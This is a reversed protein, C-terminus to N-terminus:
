WKGGGKEMAKKRNKDERKKRRMVRESGALYIFTKKNEGIGRDRKEEEQLSKENAKKTKGLANRKGV